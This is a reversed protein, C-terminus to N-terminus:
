WAGLRFYYLFNFVFSIAPRLTVAAHFGFVILRKAVLLVEAVREMAPLVWRVARRVLWPWLLHRTGISWAPQCIADGGYLSWSVTPFFSPM